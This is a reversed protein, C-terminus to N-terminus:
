GQLHKGPKGFMQNKNYVYININLLVLCLLLLMFNAVYYISACLLNGKTLYIHSVLNFGRQKSRLVIEVM